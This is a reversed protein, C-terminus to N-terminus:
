AEEDRDEVEQYKRGCLQSCLGGDVQIIHLHHNYVIPFIFQSTITVDHNM